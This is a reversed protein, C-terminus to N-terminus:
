GITDATTRDGIWPTAWCTCGRHDGPAYYAGIWDDSSALNPDEMDYFTVGDLEVHPEFPRAPAGHTWVYWELPFGEDAALGLVTQGTAVGGAPARGAETSLEVGGAQTARVELGQAGGARTMAERVMAAPIQITPDAEGILTATSRSQAATVPEYLRERALDLLATHFWAWGADRDERMRQEVSPRRDDAVGWAAQAVDLAATQADLVWTEWQAHFSDFAEALLDGTDGSLAAVVAPGLTAAVLRNEVNAVAQRASAHRQGGAVTSRLRGGARELSRTLAADAAIRLRVFLDRDIAALRLGVNPQSAAILHRWEPHSRLVDRDLRALAALSAAVGEAPVSEASTTEIAQQTAREANQDRVDSIQQAIQPLLYTLLVETISGDMIGRKLGARRAMEDPEPADEDNFGRAKRYADDSITGRDHADNAAESRDPQTVVESEDYWLFVREVEDPVVGPYLRMMPRMVDGTLADFIGIARPEVHASFTSADIMAAVNGGGLGSLESMGNVMESPLNLGDVVNRQTEKRLEVFLRDAERTFTIHRLYKEDLFEAKGRLITPVVASPDSEDAIPNLFTDMLVQSLPDEDESQTPDAPGFSLETPVTFVGATMRSRGLARIQRAMILYEDADSLVSRLASDPLDHWSPDPEWIRVFMVDDPLAEPQGDPRRRIKVKDGGLVVELVSRVEWREAEAEKIVQNDDGLVADRDPYGIVYLEGAVELNLVLSKMLGGHGGNALALRAVVDEAAAVTAPSLDADAVPIPPQDADGRVAAYWRLRACTNALFRDAYKVKGMSHFVLWADAQWEQHNKGLARVERKNSLDVRRASAVIVRAQDLSEDGPKPTRAKLVPM